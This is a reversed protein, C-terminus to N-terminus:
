ICIYINMYTNYIIFLIIISMYIYIDIDYIISFIIHIFIPILLFYIYIRM